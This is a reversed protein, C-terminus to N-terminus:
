HVNNLFNKIGGTRIDKIFLPYRPIANTKAANKSMKNLVIMVPATAPKLRKLGGPKIAMTSKIM